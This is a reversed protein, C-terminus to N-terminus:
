AVDSGVALMCPLKICKCKVMGPKIKGNMSKKSTEPTESIDSVVTADIADARAVFFADLQILPLM